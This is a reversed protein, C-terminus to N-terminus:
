HVIISLGQTVGISLNSEDTLKITFNFTGATTPTGALRGATSILQIGPPLNGSVLIWIDGDLCDISGKELQATYYEGVTAPPLTQTLVMRPCENIHITFSKSAYVRFTDDSDDILGVTFTYYGAKEPIGRFDGDDEFHIGPPLTGGLLVWEEGSCFEKSHLDDFYYEGVVGDVLADDLIRNRCDECSLTTLSLLLAVSFLVMQSGLFAMLYQKM